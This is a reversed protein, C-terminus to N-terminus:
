ESQATQIPLGGLLRDASQGGCCAGGPRSQSLRHCELGGILVVWRWPRQMMMMMMQAWHWSSRKKLRGKLRKLQFVFPESQQRCRSRREASGYSAAQPKSCSLSVALSFIFIYFYLTLAEYCCINIWENMFVGVIRIQDQLRESECGSSAKILGLM